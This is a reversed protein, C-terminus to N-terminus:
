PVVQPSNQIALYTDLERRLSRVHDRLAILDADSSGQDVGPDTCHRVYRLNPYQTTIRRPAGNDGTCHILKLSNIYSNRAQNLMRAHHRIRRDGDTAPKTLRDVLNGVDHNGRMDRLHDKLCLEIAVLTTYTELLPNPEHIQGFSRRSFNHGM